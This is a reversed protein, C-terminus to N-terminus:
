PVKAIGEAYYQIIKVLKSNELTQKDISLTDICELVGKVLNYSPFTGDPMMDLWEALIDCGKEAFEEQINLKRLTSYVENAMLLRRIAPKGQKNSERDLDVADEM